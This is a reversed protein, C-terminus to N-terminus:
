QALNVRVDCCLNFIYETSEM